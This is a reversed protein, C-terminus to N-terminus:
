ADVDIWRGTSRLYAERKQEASAHWSWNYSLADHDRSTVQILADNYRVVWGLDGDRYALAEAERMLDLTLNPAIVREDWRRIGRLYCEDGPQGSGSEYVETWGLTELLAIHQSLPTM